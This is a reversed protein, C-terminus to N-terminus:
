SATPYAVSLSGAYGERSALIAKGSVAGIQKAVATSTEYRNNRSFKSMSALIGQPTAAVGASPLVDCKINYRINNKRKKM